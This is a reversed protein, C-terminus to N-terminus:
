LRSQFMRLADALQACSEFRDEPRKELLRLIIHDLETPLEANLKSPPMPKM